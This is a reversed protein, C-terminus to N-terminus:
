GPDGRSPWTLTPHRSTAIPELRHLPSLAGAATSSRLPPSAGCATWNSVAGYGGQSPAMQKQLMSRTMRPMEASQSIVSTCMGSVHTGPSSVAAPEAEGDATEVVLPCATIDTGAEGRGVCARADAIAPLAVQSLRPEGPVAGGTPPAHKVEVVVAVPYATANAPQVIAVEENELHVGAKRRGRDPQGCYRSRRMQAPEAPRPCPREEREDKATDAGHVHATDAEM